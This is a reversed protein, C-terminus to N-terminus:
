WDWKAEAAVAMDEIRHRADRLAADDARITIKYDSPKSEMQGAAMRKAQRPSLMQAAHDLRQKRRDKM